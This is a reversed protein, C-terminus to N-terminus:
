NTELATTATAPSSYHFDICMGVVVVMVVVLFFTKFKIRAHVNIIIILKM